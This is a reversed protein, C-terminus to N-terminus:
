FSSTRLEGYTIIYGRELVLVKSLHAPTVDCQRGAPRIHKVVLHETGDGQSIGM